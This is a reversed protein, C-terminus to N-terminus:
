ANYSIISKNKGLLLKIQQNTFDNNEPNIGLSRKQEPTMAKLIKKITKTLKNIVSKKSDGPWTLVEPANHVSKPNLLFDLLLGVNTRDIGYQCGVYVNESSNMTEFFRKLNEIFESTVQRKNEKSLFFYKSNNLTLVNDLPFREYNIGVEQCKKQLEQSGGMRFDVIKSIGSTKIRQFDQICRAELTPGSVVSPDIIRINNLGMSKIIDLNITRLIRNIM